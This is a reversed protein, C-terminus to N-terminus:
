FFSPFEHTETAKNETPNNELEKGVEKEVVIFDKWENKANEEFEKSTKLEGNELEISKLDVTKLITEIRKEDVNIKKLMKAYADKKSSNVKEEDLTSKFKRLEELEKLEELNKPEVKQADKLEKLEEKISNTSELYAEMLENEIDKANEIGKLINRLESRKM